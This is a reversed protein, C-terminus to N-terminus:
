GIAIVNPDDNSISQERNRVADAVRFLPVKLMERVEAEVNEAELAKDMCLLWQDRERPGIAYPEHPETMCVTGHKDAYRPPGGMWGVLYDGLKEKMPTLDEAHMRRIDAAEPLEDMIDYFTNCIARIGDEGLAQYPTQYKSM